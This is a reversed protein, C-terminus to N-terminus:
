NRFAPQIVISWKMRYWDVVYLMGSFTRVLNMKTVITALMIFSEVDNHLGAKWKPYADVSIYSVKNVERWQLIRDQLQSLLPAAAKIGM